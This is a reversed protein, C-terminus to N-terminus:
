VQLYREGQFIKVMGSCVYRNGVDPRLTSWFKLWVEEECDEMYSKFIAIEKGQWFNSEKQETVLLEMRVVCNAEMQRFLEWSVIDRVNTPSEKWEVTKEKFQKIEQENIKIQQKGTLENEFVSNKVEVFVKNEALKVFQSHRNAFFCVGSIFNDGEQGDFKFYKSKGTKSTLVDSVNQIYGCFPGNTGKTPPSIKKPPSPTIPDEVSSIYDTNSM